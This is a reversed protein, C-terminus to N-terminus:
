VEELGKLGEDIVLISNAHSERVTKLLNRAELPGMRQYIFESQRGAYGEPTPSYRKRVALDPTIIMVQDDKNTTLPIIPFFGSIEAQTFLNHLEINTSSGDRFKTEIESRDFVEPM